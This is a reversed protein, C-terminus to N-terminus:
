TEWPLVEELDLLEMEGWSPGYEVDVPFPFDVGELMEGPVSEMVDVFQRAVKHLCDKRIEALVEDHVEGVLFAERPDLVTQHLRNMAVLLCDHGLSQIPTNVAKRQVEGLMKRDLILPFRRRRGTGSVVYGHEIVFEEQKRRWQNVGPFRAWFADIYAQAEEVSCNLEGEALSQAGRGYFVGFDVYKAIYRQEYTVEDIPVNFIEAAVLTHVDEGNKFATLLREDRSYWAAVRLELQSYDISALWWGPRPIFAKRIIPGIVTPVNQLNPRSCSLRGTRSGPLFLSPHVRHNEDALAVLGRIDKSLMRSKGRYDIIDQVIPFRDALPQIAERATTRGWRKSPLKMTDYLLHAVQKVSNPNFTPNRLDQQLRTRLQSLDGEWEEALSDLYPIDLMMGQLEIDRLTWM